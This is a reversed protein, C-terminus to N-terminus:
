PKRKLLKNALAIGPKEIYKETIRALIFSITLTLLFDSVFGIYLNKTIRNDFYENLNPFIYWVTIWHLIYISFSLQGIRELIPVRFYFSKLFSGLAFFAMGAFAPILYFSFSWSYKWNIYIALFGAFFLVFNYIQKKIINGKVDKYLLFGWLFVPLQNFLNNYYFNNNHIFRLHGYLNLSVIILLSLLVYGMLVKFIYSASKRHLWIYLLPFICYFVMEAGISWGGPVINNNYAQRLVMYLCYM